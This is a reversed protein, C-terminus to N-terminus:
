PAPSLANNTVAIQTLLSALLKLLDPDPLHPNGSPAAPASVSSTPTPPPPVPRRHPHVHITS